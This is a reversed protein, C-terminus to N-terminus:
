KRQLMVPLYIPPAIQAISGLSFNEIVLCKDETFYMKVTDVYDSRSPNNLFTRELEIVSDGLVRYHYTYKNDAIMRDSTIIVENYFTVYEKVFFSSDSLLFYDAHAVTKWVGEYAKTPANNNCSVLAVFLLLFLSKSKM